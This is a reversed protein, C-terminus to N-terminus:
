KRSTLAAARKNFEGSLLLEAGQVTLCHVLLKGDFIDLTVAGPTLTISNGLIVQSVADSSASEIEVVTPSIPMRRHLIIYAVTISSKIIELLLWGWYRPLRPIVFLSFVDHDFYRVRYALYLTLICSIAGLALLLPTYIGSWLLWASILTLILVLPKTTSRSM